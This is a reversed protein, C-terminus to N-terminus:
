GVNMSTHALGAQLRRPVFRMSWAAFANGFGPVRSPKGRLMARLASRVVQDSQMMFARQYLTPKQGSVRLFETAAVGPCVVSVRVGTKRLEHALAEGFSLVFAKAASYSAYTPTPQFAGISSVQLVYGSGREVMDRAFLHTLHVLAVVDLELMQREREWPHSLFEGYLGFGANNVLAEVEIGQARVRDRLEQRAAEEGLDAPVVLTRVGRARELEGALEKLRDERRAVLVVHAGMAALQRAFEAGLGSSAGTVLAWKDKLATM